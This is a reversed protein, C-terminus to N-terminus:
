AYDERDNEAVEDWYHRGVYFVKGSWGPKTAVRINAPNGDPYYINITFPNTM